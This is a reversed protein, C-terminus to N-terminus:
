VPSTAVYNLLPRYTTNFAESSLSTEINVYVNRDAYTLSSLTNILTNQSYAKRDCIISAVVIAAPQPPPPVVFDPRPVLPYKRRNLQRTPRPRRRKSPM